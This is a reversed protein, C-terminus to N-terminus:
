AAPGAFAWLWVSMATLLGFLSYFLGSLPVWRNFGIALFLGYLLLAAVLGTLACPIWAPFYSGAIAVVPGINM